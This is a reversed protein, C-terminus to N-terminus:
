ADGGTITTTTASAAADGGRRNKARMARRVQEVVAPPYYRGAPLDLEPVIGLRQLTEIVSNPARGLARAIGTASLLRPQPHSPELPPPFPDKM